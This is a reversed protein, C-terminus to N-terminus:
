MVYNLINEAVMKIFTAIKSKFIRAVSGYAQTTHPVRERTHIHKHAHASRCRKWNKRTYKKPSQRQKDHLL